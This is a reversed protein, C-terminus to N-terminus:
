VACPGMEFHACLSEYMCSKHHCTNTPLLQLYVFSDVFNYSVNLLVSDRECAKLSM